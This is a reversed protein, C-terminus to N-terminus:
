ANMVEGCGADKRFRVVARGIPDSCLQQPIIIISM